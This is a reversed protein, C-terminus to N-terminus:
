SRGSKPQAPTPAKRPLATSFSIDGSPYAIVTVAGTESSVLYEAGFDKVRAYVKRAIRLEAGRPDAQFVVLEPSLATLFENSNADAQRPNAALLLQCRLAGPSASDVLMKETDGDLDSAVVARFQGFEIQCVLPFHLNRGSFNQRDRPPHIASIRFTGTGRIDEQYIVSGSEVFHTSCGHEELSKLHSSYINYLSEAFREGEPTLLYPDGIRELFMRKDVPESRPSDAALSDYYSEVRMHKLIGRVGGINDSYPSSIILGKLGAYGRALLVPVVLKEGIDFPFDGSRTRATDTGANLLFAQNQPSQILVAHGGGMGSIRPDLIDIRVSAERIAGGSRNHILALVAVASVFVTARMLAQRQSARKGLLIWIVRLEQILRPWLIFLALAGYFCLLFMASPPRVAPYPFWTDFFHSSGLFGKILLWNFANLTLALYIGPGPIMGLLGAMLGIQVILGILPIAIFNAFPAALSVYKFYYATLPTMGLQIAGQAAIFSSLWRPLNSFSPRWPVFRQVIFGVPPLLLASVVLPSFGLVLRYDTILCGLLVMGSYCLAFAGIGQLRRSLFRTVPGTLLGLSLVASFSFLFAPETLILPNMLLIALSAVAISFLLSARLGQGFIYLSMIGVSNMIAARMTSPRAGTIITFIILAIIIAPGAIRRPVRILAFLGMFLATIITVHLGSVALVHSVGAARLENQVETSLGGRLGLLVGGLFSSEPFPLTRRITQLIRGKIHLSLRVILPATGTEALQIQSSQGVRVIGYYGQNYLFSQFNFMGPNNAPAPAQIQVNDLRIRDGYGLRNYLDGVDPRMTVYLLGKGVPTKRNSREIFDPRVTLITNRERVEPERIITGEVSSRERYSADTALSVLHGPTTLDTHVHFNTFGLILSAVCVPLLIGRRALHLPISALFLIASCIIWGWVPLGMPIGNRALIIGLVFSIAAAQTLRIM